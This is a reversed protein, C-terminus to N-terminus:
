FRTRCTGIRDQGVWRGGRVHGMKFSEDGDRLRSRFDDGALLMARSHEKQMPAALADLFEVKNKNERRRHYFVGSLLLLLAVFGVASGAIITRRQNTSITTPNSQLKTPIPHCNSSSFTTSPQNPPRNSKPNPLLHLLPYASVHSTVSMTTQTDSPTIPNFTTTTTTDDRTSTTTTRTPTITTTRTPTTTTTTTPSTTGFKILPGIM